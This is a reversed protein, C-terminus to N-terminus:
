ITQQEHEFRNTIYNSPLNSTINLTKTTKDISNHRNSQVYTHTGLWENTTTTTSMIQSFTNGEFLNFKFPMKKETTCLTHSGSTVLLIAAFLSREPVGCHTSSCFLSTAFSSFIRQFAELQFSFSSKQRYHRKCAHSNCNSTLFIFFHSVSSVTEIWCFFLLPVPLITFAHPNMSRMAVHIGVICILPLLAVISLQTILINYLFIIRRRTVNHSCHSLIKM